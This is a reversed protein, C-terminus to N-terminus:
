RLMFFYSVIVGALFGFLHGEWSSKKEIPFLNAAMGGLYYVCIIGLLVTVISPHRIALVLLYGWYGMALSSAGIHIAKRGFLWTALGSLLVISGTVWYFNVRGYMLTFSILIFLPISNFILHTFNGHLLPAFVVGRLGVAQRPIIGLRNFGYGAAANLCHIGWLIGLLALVFWLNATFTAIIFQLSNTFHELM